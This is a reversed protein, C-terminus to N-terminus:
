QHWDIRAVPVDSNKGQLLLHLEDPLPRLGKKGPRTGGGNELQLASVGRCVYETRSNKNSLSDLHVERRLLWPQGKVRIVRYIVETPRFTPQGGAFDEGAYGVLRLRKASCEFQRSNDLDRHLRRVLQDRWPMAPASEILAKRGAAMSRITGLVAVMLASALALAALLEVATYADRPHPSRKV